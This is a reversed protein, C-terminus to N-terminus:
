QDNLRQDRIARQLWLYKLGMHKLKGLGHRAAVERAANSDPGVRQARFSFGLEKCMAQLELVEVSGKLVAYYEAEGSSLAQVARTVSWTCLVHRGHCM